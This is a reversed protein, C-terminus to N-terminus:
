RPVETKPNMDVLADRLCGADLRGILLYHPGVKLDTYGEIRVGRRECEELASALKLIAETQVHTIM